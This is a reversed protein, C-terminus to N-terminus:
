TTQSRTTRHRNRRGGQNWRRKAGKKSRERPPQWRNTHWYESCSKHILPITGYEGTNLINKDVTNRIAQAAHTKHLATDDAWHRPARNRCTTAVTCDRMDTVMPKQKLVTHQRCFKGFACPVPHKSSQAMTTTTLIHLLINLLTHMPIHTHTRFSTCSRFHHKPLSTKARLSLKECV